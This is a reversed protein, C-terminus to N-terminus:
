ECRLSILKFIDRLRIPWLRTPRDSELPRQIFKPLESLFDLGTKEELEGITVDNAATGGYAVTATILMEDVESGFLTPLTEALDKPM